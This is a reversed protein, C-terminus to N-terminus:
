LNGRLDIRTRNEGTFFSKLITCNNSEIQLSAGEDGSSIQTFYMREIKIIESRLEIREKDYSNIRMVSIFIEGGSFKMESCNSVSLSEINIMDFSSVDLAPSEGDCDTVRCGNIEIRREAVQTSDSSQKVKAIIGGDCM